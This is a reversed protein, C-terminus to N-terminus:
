KQETGLPANPDNSSQVRLHARAAPGLRKVLADFVSQARRLGLATNYAHSARVDTHGVIGVVGGGMEELRRAVSDLLGEFEPRITSRDTDFLVTGLLTESGGLMAVLSHPDDVRTRLAVTLAGAADKGTKAVLADRVAEARAFALPENGGEATIVVEGGGHADVQEAMKAIAPMYEPRLEASDPAFFVEGLQLELVQTSGPIEQVPLQVGFGFRVPVGPTIRRVLPNETTFETQAPLTAPDVKLIFNRGHASEGGQVDILHYRGYQDTEILLGEVSAIRVGPIGREDIGTNGIAYAVEYGDEVRAISRQVAPEGAGIGRAADGDREVSTNGQADMRLTLGQGSTLVFGDNFTLERLRQRIVVQRVAGIDAISERGAVAGLDIGHLLPASADAQSVPGQGRDITTTGPIYVGPDFGGQVHVGDLAARDQWGDGDRDDYVTGFILSDDLLPDSEIVVQATAVNSVPDDGADVAVAENIYVGARVGAGVRLLYVVTAHEGVAIDLGGIRLPSLGPSLTFAGDGDAVSMSGDVYVFGAPPTDLVTGGVLNRTGVNEITLTYRLIDGIKATRASVTKTIRLSTDDVVKHTIECVECEPVKGQSEGTLLNLVTDGADANVIATYTFTSTGPAMGAPLACRFGDGSRTCGAPLTEIDLGIGPDDVLFAEDLTSSNEVLATLTYEISDGIRVESGAAPNSSKSITIKPDALLHEVSCSSCDPTDGGGGAAAVQNRVQQRADAGVSATYAVEYLGPLTGVPLVCELTGSCTFAGADTVAGFVLGPGLTDTLTFPQTTASNAVTVAVTYAITDGVRVEAGAAPDASKVVTIAVPKITHETACTTCTPDPDGGAATSAKVENSVTGTADPDVTATYTMAYTGIGQEPLTCVLGNCTFKGANTVADLTLGKGLTDVLDVAETMGSQAVTVTLTYTITDGPLVTSGSVPNATKTVTTETPVIKHETTCTACQPDPDGGPDNSALVTNGVTSTATDAVRATYTVVHDKTADAGARLVCTLEGSCDFGGADTIEVFDLGKGLTDALTLDQSTNSNAISVTLTYTILDGPAVTSGPAPNAGKTVVIEAAQIIHQTTCSTCVPPADIGQGNSAVVSNGVTDTADLDVTASYTIVHTGRAGVPLTCTLAGSCDFGGDDTVAGFSLGKGLTDKLTLVQTTAANAIDVTLTYNLTAGPLVTSGSAPDASKAVTIQAQLPNTTTCTTCTGTDTVVSNSVATNADQDVTATYVLPYDDAAKGQPLTCALSQGTNNCSTFEGSSVIKGFTLGDGLTDTVNVAKSTAANAVSVTITYTITDDVKVQTGDGVDSAKSVTVTSGIPTDEICDNGAATDDCDVGEVEVKNHILTTGAPLPDDVKVVFGLDVSGGGPVTVEDTNLCTTGTCTFDNDGNAVATTHDPLFEDVDGPALFTVTGGGNALNINYTLTNGPVVPTGAVYPSGDVQALTKTVTLPEPAAIHPTACSALDMIDPEAVTPGATAEGTRPDYFYYGPSGGNHHTAVLLRGDATFSLGKVTDNTIRTLSVHTHANLDGAALDVTYVARGAVLWALGDADFALDGSSDSIFQDFVLQGMDTAIYATSGPTPDFRTVRWSDDSVAYIRGDPAAAGQYPFITGTPVTSWGGGNGDYVYLRPTGGADHAEFLLRNRDPDVSLANASQPFVSPNPSGLDTLKTPPGSFNPDHRWIGGDEDLSYSQNSTPCFDYTVAASVEVVASATNNGPTDDTISAPPTVTVTNTLSDQAVAPALPVFALVLSLMTGALLRHAAVAIGPLKVSVPEDGQQHQIWEAARQPRQM